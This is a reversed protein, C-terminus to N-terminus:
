AVAFGRGGSGKDARGDRGYVGAAHAGSPRLLALAQQTQSIRQQLLVANLRNLERAQKVLGLLDASASRSVNSLRQACAVKREALDAIQDGENAILADREAELLTVFDKWNQLQLEVVADASSRSQTM